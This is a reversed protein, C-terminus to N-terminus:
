EAVIKGFLELYREEAIDLKIQLNRIALSSKGDEIMISRAEVDKAMVLSHSTNPSFDYMNTRKRKLDKMDYRIDEVNRRFATELQEALAEGRESRIQKNTRDLSQYLTGKIEEKVDDAM